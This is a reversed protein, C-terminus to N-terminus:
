HRSAHNGDKGTYNTNEYGSLLEKGKRRPQSSRIGHAYM